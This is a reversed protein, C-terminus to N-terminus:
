PGENKIGLLLRAGYWIEPLPDGLKQKLYPRSEAPVGAGSNALRKLSTVLGPVLAEPAGPFPAADRGEMLAFGRELYDIGLGLTYKYTGWFRPNCELVFVRSRAAGDYCMDVNAMGTYGSAAAIKRGNDVVRDDVLYAVAGDRRRMHVSWALLKGRDALFSLSVDEGDIYEQALTPFRLHKSTGALRADRAAADRAVIVGTGGAESLPKLVLPLPLAAAQAANELLWTKPAAIGNKQLFGYFTWKNDLVKLTDAPTFPYFPLEPLLPRLSSAFIGGPVDVPVVLDVGRERALRVAAAVSEPRAAALDPGDEAVQAYAACHRSLRLMRGKGGGAITVKIGEASLTRIMTLALNELSTLVLAHKYRAM